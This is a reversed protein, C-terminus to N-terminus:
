RITIEAEKPVPRLLGNHTDAGVRFAQSQGSNQKRATQLRELERISRMLEHENSTSYRLILDIRNNNSNLNGGFAQQEEEIIRAYRLMKWVITEMVLEELLGEPQYHDRLRIAWKEYTDRDEVGYLCPSLLHQACLGHKLSNRASKAKGSTTKPGTSLQANARNAALKKESVPRKGQHKQENM